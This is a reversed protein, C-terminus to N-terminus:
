RDRNATRQGRAQTEIRRQRVIVVINVINRREAVLFVFCGREGLQIQDMRKKFLKVLDNDIDDIQNRIDVLEM